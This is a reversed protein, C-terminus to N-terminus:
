QRGALPRTRRRSSSPAPAANKGQLTSQPGRLVEVQEVDWLSRLGRRVAEANQMAGDVIVAIVPASSASQNQSLGESNIGRITIGGNNQSARTSLANAVANLAEHFDFIQEQQIREGTVVGVSTTVDVSPREVKEGFITIEPLAQTQAYAPISLTLSIGTCGALALARYGVLGM